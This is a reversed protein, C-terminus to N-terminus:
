GHFCGFGQTRRCFLLSQKCSRDRLQLYLDRGSAPQFGRRKRRRDHGISNCIVTESPNTSPTIAGVVGFPAMEVLTLGNDGTKAESLIDETGPTKDAVLIHKLRKHEVRGMGTEKVGLEALTQAEKRTLERIATIIKERQEVSMSRVAKYGEQAAAIAENMDSYIGILKRGNYETSTYSLTGKSEAAPSGNNINSLVQRVIEEIQSQKLEAM